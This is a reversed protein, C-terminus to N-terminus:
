IRFRLTPDGPNRALLPQALASYRKCAAVAGATDGGVMLANCLRSSIEALERQFDLNGGDNSLLEETMAASQRYSDVSDPIRGEALAGDGLRRVSTALGLRSRPDAPHKQYLAQRIQHAKGYSAVAGKADGLNM